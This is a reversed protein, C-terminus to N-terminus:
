KSFCPEEICKDIDAQFAGLLNKIEILAATATIEKNTIQEELTEIQREVLKVSSSLSVANYVKTYGNLDSFVLDIYIDLSSLMTHGTWQQLQQKFTTTHLLHKRFDDKSNIETHILIIEKLKDTIFAHRWLHPHLEGVIGLEKKWLNMYTTWSDATLPNGTNLNIFLYDHKVKKKKMVKKRVKGYDSISMLLVNPVPIQRTTQDDKRKLTTLRLMGTRRAEEYESWKILHLESVRAGLQEMATYLAMDRKRKDKSPQTKIYNWVKLADNESVPHRKKKEDPTPIASHTIKVGQIFGKYGERKFKYPKEFTQVSNGKDMGIFNSLDHFSQVFYLFELCTHAIKIITNNKRKLEGNPKREVQLNQLFLRFTSDSLQSFKKISPQVEIFRLLHVIDHAYGRITDKKLNKLMLTHIYANVEFCPVHSSYTIFPIDIPNRFVLKEDFGLHSWLEINKLKHVPM